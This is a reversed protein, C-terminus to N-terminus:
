GPSSESSPNCPWPTDPDLACALLRTQPDPHFTPGRYSVGWLSFCRQAAERDGQGVGIDMLTLCRRGRRCGRGMSM